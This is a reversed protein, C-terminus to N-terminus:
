VRGPDSNGNFGGIVYITDNVVATGFDSLATPMSTKVTWQQAFTASAVLMTAFILLIPNKM